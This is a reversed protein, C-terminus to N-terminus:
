KLNLNSLLSKARWILDYKSAFIYANLRIRNFKKKNLKISNIKTLWSYVDEFNNILLSNNNNKLVERIVKLNSCIILKGTKMYDFIKLPSTYNSIDGVNGSVTVKKTYPLICIDIKNLKKKIKSYPIYQSFFINSNKYNKKLSAADKKEGGYVFYKNIRDIESLKTILNLGRSEFISGFYGINLKKKIKKYNKFKVNLSSANHLVQIKNKKVGYRNSYIKKLTNTTTVLKVVHINNLFKTFYVLFRISRGEIELDDHIELVHKKKLICLSFSVFFNRTIFLDQNKYNSLLIAILSFLYYNIGLPFKKFFKIRIIRFRSKINYFNFLNKKYGTNPLILTVNHGIKSLAECLKATQLSSANKSPSASNSIISIKM